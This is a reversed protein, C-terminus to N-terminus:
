GNADAVAAYSLAVRQLSTLTPQHHEAAHLEIMGAVWLTAASFLMAWATGVSAGMVKATLQYQNILLAADEISDNERATVVGLVVPKALAILAAELDPDREATSV